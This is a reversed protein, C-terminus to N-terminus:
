APVYRVLTRKGVERVPVFGFDLFWDLGGKYDPPDTPYAEVASAGRAVAHDVAAELLARAAGRRRVSRDVAFCSILFVGPEDDRPRFDRSRFLGAFHERPAVSVWGKPEGDQYAILGPEQGDEVLACLHQKNEEPERFPARWVVCWCNATDQRGGRPGPREFLTVLDPWRGPTMPRIDLEM